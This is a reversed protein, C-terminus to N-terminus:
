LATAACAGCISTSADKLVTISEIDGPNITCQFGIRSPCATWFSSRTALEQAISNTGRIQFVAAKGTRGLQLHGIVPLKGQLAQDFAATPTDAFKEAKVTSVPVRPHAGKKRM